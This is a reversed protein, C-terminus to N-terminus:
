YYIIIFLLIISILKVSLEHALSWSPIPLFSHGLKLAVEHVFTLSYYERAYYARLTPEGM